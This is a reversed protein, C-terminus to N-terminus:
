PSARLFEATVSKSRMNRTQAFWDRLCVFFRSVKPGFGLQELIQTKMIYYRDAELLSATFDICDSMNSEPLTGTAMLLEGNPREDNLLVEQGERDM